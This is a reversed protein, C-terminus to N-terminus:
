NGWRTSLIRCGATREQASKLRPNYMCWNRGDLEGVDHEAIELIGRKLRTESSAPRDRRDERPANSTM